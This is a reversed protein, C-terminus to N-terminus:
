ELHPRYVPWGGCATAPAFVVSPLFAPLSKPSPVGTHDGERDRGESDREAVRGGDYVAVGCGTSRRVPVPVVDRKDRKDSLWEHVEGAGAGAELKKGEDAADSTDMDDM